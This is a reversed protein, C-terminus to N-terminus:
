IIFIIHAHYLIFGVSFMEPIPTFNGPETYGNLKAVVIRGHLVIYNNLDAIPTLPYTRSTFSAALGRSAAYRAPNFGCCNYVDGVLKRYNWARHLPM